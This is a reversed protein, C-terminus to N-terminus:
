RAYSVNLLTTDAFPSWASRALAAAAALDVARRTVFPTSNM